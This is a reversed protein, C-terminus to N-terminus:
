DNETEWLYAEYKGGLLQALRATQKAVEGFLVADRGPDDGGSAYESAWMGFKGSSNELGAADALLASLVQRSSPQRGEFGYGLFFPLAYSRGEFRLTVDWWHGERASADRSHVAPPNTRRRASCRIHDAAIRESLATM